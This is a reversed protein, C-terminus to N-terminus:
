RSTSQTLLPVGDKKNPMKRTYSSAYRCVGRGDYLNGRQKSVLRPCPDKHYLQLNTNCLCVKSNSQLTLSSDSWYYNQYYYKKKHNLSIKLICSRPSCLVKSLKFAKLQCKDRYAAKINGPM